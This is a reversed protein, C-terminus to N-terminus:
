SPAQGAPYEALKTTLETMYADYEPTGAPYRPALETTPELIRYITQRSVNFTDAIQQVTYSREAYMKRAQEVRTKSMKSPRGGNRGRARAAALGEHTREVILDREFEALSAMITFFMKGAPTGTDVGLSLIVLNVGRGRLHEALEILNKTSRGLRDLKTVVLSDGERLYDLARDLEPRHAITGTVKETFMKTCGVAQLQDLQGELNQERTSVRAYGVKTM